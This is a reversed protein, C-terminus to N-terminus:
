NSLDALGCECAKCTTSILRVAGGAPPQHVSVHRRNNTPSFNAITDSSLSCLRFNPRASFRSGRPAFSSSHQHFVAASDGTCATTTCTPHSVCYKYALGKFKRHKGPRGSFLSPASSSLIAAICLHKSDLRPDSHLQAFFSPSFSTPLRACDM